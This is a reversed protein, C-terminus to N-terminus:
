IINYKKKLEDSVEYDYKSKEQFQDIDDEWKSNNLYTSTMPVFGKLWKQDKEKRLKVDEIIKNQLDETFSLFKKKCKDKDVRRAPYTEWFILFLNNNDKNNNKNNTNYINPETEASAVLETEASTQHLKQVLQTGYKASATEASATEASAINIIKYHSVSTKKILKKKILSKLTKIVTNRSINLMNEIYTLSGYFTNDGSQSFGYIIAYILLENGKLKLDCLMFGQINIYNKHQM